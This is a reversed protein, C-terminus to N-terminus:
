EHDPRRATHAPGVPEAAIMAAMMARAQEAFAYAECPGDCALYHEGRCVHFLQHLSEILTPQWRQPKGGVVMWGTTGQGEVENFLSRPPDLPPPSRYGGLAPQYGGRPRRFACGVLLGLTFAGAAVLGWALVLLQLTTM